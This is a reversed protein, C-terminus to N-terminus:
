NRRVRGTKWIDMEDRLIREVEGLSRRNRFPNREFVFPATEPPKRGNFRFRLTVRDM